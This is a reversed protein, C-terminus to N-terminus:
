FRDHIASTNTTVTGMFPAVYRKLHDTNARLTTIAVQPFSSNCSPQMTIKLISMLIKKHEIHSNASNTICAHLLFSRSFSSSRLFNCCLVGELLGENEGRASGGGRKDEKEEVDGRAVVLVVEVDGRVMEVDSRM